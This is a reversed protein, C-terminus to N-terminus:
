SAQGRASGYQCIGRSRDSGEFYFQDPVYFADLSADQGLHLLARDHNSTHLYAFSLNYNIKALLSLTPYVCRFTAVAKRDFGAPLLAISFPHRLAQNDSDTGPAQLFKQVRPPEQPPLLETSNVSAWNPIGALSMMIGFWMGAMLPRIM